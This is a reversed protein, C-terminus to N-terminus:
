RHGQRRRRAQRQEAQEYQGNHKLLVVEDVKKEDLVDSRRFGVCFRSIGEAKAREYDEPWGIVLIDGLDRVLIRRIPGALSDVTVYQGEVLETSM